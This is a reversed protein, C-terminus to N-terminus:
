PREPFAHLFLFVSERGDDDHRDAKAREGYERIMAHIKDVLETLEAPSLRPYSNSNTAADLWDQSWDGQANEYATLRAFQDSIMQRKVTDAVARAEPTTFDSSSWSNSEDVARWWTERRDRALEPAQGIYGRRGLERLHYSVLGPESGVKAALVSVPSPGLQVLLRYLRQRMPHAMGKLVDPDTIRRHETV